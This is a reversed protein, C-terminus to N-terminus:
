PTRIGNMLTTACISTAGRMTTLHRQALNEAKKYAVFQLYTEMFDKVTFYDRRGDDKTTIPSIFDGLMLRKAM